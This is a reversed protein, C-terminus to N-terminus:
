IKRQVFICLLYRYILQFKWQVIHQYKDVRTYANLLIARQNDKGINLLKGDVGVNDNAALQEQLWAVATPVGTIGTACISLLFM